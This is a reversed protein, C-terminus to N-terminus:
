WTATALRFASASSCNSGLRCTASAIALYRISGSPGFGARFQFRPMGPCGTRQPSRRHRFDVHLNGIDAVELVHRDDLHQHLGAVDDLNILRQDREFGILRLEVYGRWHGALDGLDHRLDAVFHRHSREDRTDLRCRALRRLSGASALRGRRGGSRRRRSGLPRRSSRGLSFGGRRRGSGRRGGLRRRDVDRNGIDAVERLHRDDLNQQLRSIRDFRLLRDQREFGVLRLEVYGRRRGALDRLNQDLDAVFHRHADQDRPEVRAGSTRRGRDVGLRLLLLVSGFRRFGRGNRRAVQRGRRGLRGLTGGEGIEGANEGPGGNPPERALEAKVEILDFPGALLSADRALVHLRRQDSPGSANLAPGGNPAARRQGRDRRDVECFEPRDFGNRQRADLAYGPRAQMGRPHIHRM